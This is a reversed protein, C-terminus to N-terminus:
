RNAVFNSESPSIRQISAFIDDTTEDPTVLEPRTTLLVPSSVTRDPPEATLV